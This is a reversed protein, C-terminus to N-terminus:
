VLIHNKLRLTVEGSTTTEDTFTFLCMPLKIKSGLSHLVTKLTDDIFHLIFTNINQIKKWVTWEISILDGTDHRSWEVVQGCKMCQLNQAFVYKRRTFSNLLYVINEYCFQLSYLSLM